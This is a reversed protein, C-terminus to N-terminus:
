TLVKNHEIFKNIAKNSKTFFRSIFITILTVILLQILLLFMFDRIIQLRIKDHLNLLHYDQLISSYSEIMLAPIIKYGSITNVPLPIIFSLIFLLYFIIFTSLRIHKAM